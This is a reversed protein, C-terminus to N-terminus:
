LSELLAPPGLQSTVCGLGIGQAYCLVASLGSVAGPYLYRPHESRCPKSGVAPVETVAPGLGLIQGDGGELVLIGTVGAEQTM